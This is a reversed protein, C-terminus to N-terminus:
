CTIGNHQLPSGVQIASLQDAQSLWQLRPLAVARMDLYREAHSDNFLDSRSESGSMRNNGTSNKCQPQISARSCHHLTCSMAAYSKHGSSLWRIEKSSRSYRLIMTSSRSHQITPHESCLQQGHVITGETGTSPMKASTTHSRCSITKEAKASLPGCSLVCASNKCLIATSTNLPLMSWNLYTFGEIRCIVHEVLVSQSTKCPDQVVPREEIRCIHM